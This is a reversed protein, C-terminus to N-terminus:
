INDADPDTIQEVAGGMLNWIYDLVAECRSDDLGVLDPEGNVIGQCMIVINGLVPHGHEDTGYLKCGTANIPREHIYGDEDCLVVYPNKLISPVTEVSGGVANKLSHLMDREPITRKFMTNQPTVIIINM